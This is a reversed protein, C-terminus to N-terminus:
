NYIFDLKNEYFVVEKFNGFKKIEDLKKNAYKNQIFKILKNAQKKNKVIWNACERYHNDEIGSTDNGAEKFENIVFEALSYNNPIYSGPHIEKDFGDICSHLDISVRYFSNGNGEDKEKELVGWYRPSNPELEIIKRISNSCGLLIQDIFEKIKILEHMSVLGDETNIKFEFDEFNIMNISITKTTKMEGNEVAKKINDIFGEVLYNSM